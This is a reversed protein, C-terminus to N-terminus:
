VNMWVPSSWATEEDTQVVRVYYFDGDRAESADRYEFYEEDDGVERVFLPENNKVIKLHSITDTGIAHIRIVREASSDTVDVEGGMMVEDVSFELIMRAGTTAYVRRAKLSDFIAERTLEPAYVCTFGSKQHVCWQRDQPYSRGPTGAHSDGCGIFGFRYGRALANFVGSGPKESKYWLPDQHEVGSGWCSYVEVLCELEQDYYDWNTWSKTHHPISIIDDRGRFYEFMENADSGSLDDLTPEIETTRYIINRHGDRFGYEFGKLSVFRGPDYFKIVAEQTAQWGEEKKHGNSDTIAMFDLGAVDRGYEYGEDPTGISDSHWMSQCHLDGFYVNLDRETCWIPNSVGSVGSGDATTVAIRHIGPALAEAGEVVRLNADEATFTESGGIKMEPRATGVRVEGEMNGTPRNRFADMAMLKVPFPWGPRVIAPAVVNVQAPPTPLVRIMLDDPPLEVFEREGTVDVYGHFHDKDTAAVRPAEVGDEGWTTDGYTIIIRDGPQLDGERVTAAINHSWGGQLGATPSREEAALDVWAEGDTEVEVLTNKRGYGVFGNDYGGRDHGAQFFRHHPVEPWGWADNPMAIRLSGGEAIGLEGVTYVFTLTVMSGAVVDGQPSMTIQGHESMNPDERDHADRTGADLIRRTGTRVQAGPLFSV